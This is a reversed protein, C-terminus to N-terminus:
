RSNTVHNTIFIEAIHDIYDEYRKIKEQDIEKELKRAYYNVQGAGGRSDTMNAM